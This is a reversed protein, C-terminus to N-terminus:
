LVRLRKVFGCVLVDPVSCRSSSTSVPRPSDELSTCKPAPLQTAQPLPRHIVSPRDKDDDQLHSPQSLSAQAMRKKKELPSLGM